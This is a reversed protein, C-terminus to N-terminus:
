HRTMWGQLGHVQGHEQFGGRAVTFPLPCAIWNARPVREITCESNAKKVLELIRQFQTEAQEGNM